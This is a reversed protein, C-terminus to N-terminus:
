EVVVIWDTPLDSDFIDWEPHDTEQRSFTLGIETLILVVDEQHRKFCAPAYEAVVLDLGSRNSCDEHFHALTQAHILGFFLHLGEQSLSM